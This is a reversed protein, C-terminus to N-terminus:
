ERAGESMPPLLGRLVELTAPILRELCDDDCDFHYEQIADAEDTRCGNKDVGYSGRECWKCTERDNSWLHYQLAKILESLNM